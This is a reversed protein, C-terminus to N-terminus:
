FLITQAQSFEEISAIVHVLDEQNIEENQSNLAAMASLHSKEIMQAMDAKSEIQNTPWHTVARKLETLYSVYPKVPVTTEKKLAAIINDIKEIVPLRQDVAEIPSM